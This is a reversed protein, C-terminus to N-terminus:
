LKLQVCDLADTDFNLATDSGMRTGVVWYLDVNNPFNDANANISGKKVGDFWFSVQNNGDFTIGVKHWQSAVLTGADAVAVSEATGAECYVGRMTEGATGIDPCFGVFAAADVIIGSDEKQLADAGATIAGVLGICISGVNDAVSSTRFFAEFAMKGNGANINCVPVLSRVWIEDNDASSGTSALRLAGGLLTSLLTADVSSDDKDIVSDVATVPLIHFNRFDHFADGHRLSDSLVNKWLDPSPVRNPEEGQYPNLRM